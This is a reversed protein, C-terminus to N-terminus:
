YQEQDHNQKTNPTKCWDLSQSPLHDVFNGTIKHHAWSLKLCFSTMIYLTSDDQVDTTQGYM